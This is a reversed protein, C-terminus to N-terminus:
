TFICQFIKCNKSMGASINSSMPQPPMLAECLTDGADNKKGPKSLTSGLSGDGSM